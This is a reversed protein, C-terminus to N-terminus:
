EVSGFGHGELLLKKIVKKSKKKNRELFESEGAKTLFYEYCFIQIPVVASWAKISLSLDGRTIGMILFFISFLFLLYGYLKETYRNFYPLEKLYIGNM